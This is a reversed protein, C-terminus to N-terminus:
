SLLLHFSFALIFNMLKLEFGRSTNVKITRPILRKIQSFSTEIRKRVKERIFDICGEYKRKSSAKRQPIFDIDLAEKLLDEYAYDNYARDAYIKAGKPLTM